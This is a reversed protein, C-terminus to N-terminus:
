SLAIGKEILSIKKIRRVHRSQKTVPTKLFQQVIKETTPLSIGQESKNQTKGGALCIVNTGNLARTTKAEKPTAVQAARVKPVKNAAICMGAGSGCILVGLANNRAVAEAVLVAFDPYDDNKDYVSNGLDIFSIKQNGLFKKLKEKLHYGAHDAGIYLKTM